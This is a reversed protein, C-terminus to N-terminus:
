LPFFHDKTFDSIKNKLNICQSITIDKSNRYSKCKLVKKVAVQYDQFKPYLKLMLDNASIICTACIEGSLVETDNIVLLAFDMRKVINFARKNEKEGSSGLGVMIFNEWSRIYKESEIFVGFYRKISKAPIVYDDVIIDSQVQNYDKLEMDIQKLREKIEQVKENNNLFITDIQLLQKNLNIKEQELKLKKKRKELVPCSHTGDSNIICKEYKEIKPVNLFEKIVKEITKKREKRKDSSNNNNNIKSPNTKAKTSKSQNEEQNAKM